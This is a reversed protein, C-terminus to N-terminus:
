KAAFEQRVKAGIADTDVKYAPAADTLINNPNGRSAPL